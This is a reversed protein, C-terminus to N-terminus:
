RKGDLQADVFHFNKLVVSDNESTSSSSKNYSISIPVASNADLKFPTCCSFVSPCCSSEDYFLALSNQSAAFSLESRYIKRTRLVPGVFVPISLEPEKSFCICAQKFGQRFNKNFLAYLFPNVASNSHGLFLALFYFTANFAVCPYRDRGFFILFQLLWLPLWCLAFIFIVTMLMKVVKKRSAQTKIENRNSQEGPPKRKWLKLCIIFYLIAMTKLPVVYMTVFLVVTYDRPAEKPEFMPSWEEICIEYGGQTEVRQAYILPAMMMVSVLWIVTVIIKAKFFSLRQRLPFVIAIFRDWSIALLTFVSSAITVSQFFVILKCLITGFIWKNGLFLQTIMNPECLAAVLIDSVALNCIFFNIVTRLRHNQWVIFVVLANGILSSLIIIAYAGAKAVQSALTEPTLPCNPSSTNTSNSLSDAVYM